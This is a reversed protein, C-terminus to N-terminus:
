YMLSRSKFLYDLIREDIKYDIYIYEYINDKYNISINKLFKNTETYFFLYNFPIFILSNRNLINNKIKHLDYNLLSFSM